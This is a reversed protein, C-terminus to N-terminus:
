KVLRIVLNFSFPTRKLLMVSGKISVVSFDEWESNMMLINAAKACNSLSMMMSRVLAPRSDALRLPFTKPAGFPNLLFFWCFATSQSSYKLLPTNVTVSIHSRNFM